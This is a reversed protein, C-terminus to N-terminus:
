GSLLKLKQELHPWAPQVNAQVSHRFEFGNFQAQIVSLYLMGKCM